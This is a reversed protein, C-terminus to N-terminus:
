QALGFVVNNGGGTAGEINCSCTTGTLAPGPTPCTGHPTVCTASRGITAPADQVASELSKNSNDLQKAVDPSIKVGSGTRESGGEKLAEESKSLLSLWGAQAPGVIMVSLALLFAKTSIRM